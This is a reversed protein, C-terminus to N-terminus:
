ALTVNTGNRKPSCSGSSSSPANWQCERDRGDCFRLIALV